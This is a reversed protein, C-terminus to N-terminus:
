APDVGRYHIARDVLNAIHTAAQTTLPHPTFGSRPSIYAAMERALQLRRDSGEALLMIMLNELSIVRIRLQILEADTLRPNGTLAEVFARSEQPGEPGAGGENDWTSLAKRRLKSANEQDPKPSPMLLSGLNPIRPPGTVLSRLAIERRM